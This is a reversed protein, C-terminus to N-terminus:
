LYGRTWGQEKMEKEVTRRWTEKPRGRKRSPLGLSVKIPSYTVNTSCPLDMAVEQASRRNGLGATTHTYLVIGFITTGSSRSLTRERCKIVVTMTTTTVTTTINNNSNTTTNGRRRSDKNGRKRKINSFTYKTKYNHKPQNQLSSGPLPSSRVCFNM